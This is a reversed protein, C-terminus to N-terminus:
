PGIRNHIDIMKRKRRKQSHDDRDGHQTKKGGERGEIHSGDRRAINKAKLGSTRRSSISRNKKRSTTGEWDGIAQWEYERNREKM